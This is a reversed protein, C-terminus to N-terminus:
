KEETLPKLLIGKLDALSTIQVKQTLETDNLEKQLDTQLGSASKEFFSEMIGIRLSILDNKYLQLKESLSKFDFSFAVKGSSVSIVKEEGTREDKEKQLKIDKIKVYLDNLFADYLMINSKNFVGVILMKPELPTRYNGLEWKGLYFLSEFFNALRKNREAICKGEDKADYVWKYELKINGNENKSTIDKGIREIHCWFPTVFTNTYLQKSVMSGGKESGTTSVVCTLFDYDDTYEFIGRGGISRIPGPRVNSRAGREPSMYGFLDDDICKKADCELESQKSKAPPGMVDVPLKKEYAWYDRIMRMLSQPSIRPVITGDELHIKKIEIENSGGEGANENSMETRFIDVVEIWKGKGIEDWIKENKEISM